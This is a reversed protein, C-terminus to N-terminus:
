RESPLLAVMKGDPGGQEVYIKVEAVPFDTYEIHQHIFPEPYTRDANSDRYCYVDAEHTALNVKLLWIQFDRLDPDNQCQYQYSGILDILWYAGAARALENVGDTFTFAGLSHKFWNNTGNRSEDIIAQIQAPTPQM